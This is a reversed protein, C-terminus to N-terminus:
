LRLKFFVGVLLPAHYPLSFKELFQDELKSYDQLQMAIKMVDLIKLEWSAHITADYTLTNSRRHFVVVTLNIYNPTHFPAESLTLTQLTGRVV